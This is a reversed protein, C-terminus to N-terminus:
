AGEATRTPYPFGRKAFFEKLLSLDSEYMQAFWLLNQDYEWRGLKSLQLCLSWWTPGEIESVFKRIFRLAVEFSYVDFILYPWGMRVGDTLNDELWKTTCIRIYFLHPGRGGQFSISAVVEFRCYEPDAPVFDELAVDADDWELAQLEAKM